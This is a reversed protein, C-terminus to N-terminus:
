SIAEGEFLAAVAPPPVACVRKVNTLNPALGNAALSRGSAPFDWAGEPGPVLVRDFYGKLMAPLNFWWTPYVFVLSDAWRLDDLQSRVDSALRAAGGAGDFYVGRESSTLAPQFNEAYLSRRRLEHGGDVAGAQVADALAMSFSDARPHAHILLIRRPGSGEEAPPPPVHSTLRNLKIAAWRTMSNWLMARLLSALNAHSFREAQL